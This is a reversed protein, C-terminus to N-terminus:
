AYVVGRRREDDAMIEAIRRAIEKEDQEPTAYVNITVAEAGRRAGNADVKINPDYADVTMKSLDDMADYVSDANAEIGVAIGEPIYRGVTDRMLKSPSSIGFFKKVGKWADSALNKMIDKIAGGARKIGSVIGDIMSRGLSGWDFSTFSKVMQGILSGIESLIQPITKAIGSIISGILKVGLAIFEPLRQIIASLMKGALSVITSLINPLNNSIGNIMSGIIKFGVDLFKPMSDVILKVVNSILKGMKDTISPIANLIGDGISEIGDIIMDVGSGDGTFLKTLGDMVKTMSPLFVTLINNKMGTISTKLDQLSDQYKASAKVADESMVGGLKHVQQRMAETDEASTNLLAGLEVAGKGLLKSAITTRETGEEMGQLATITRSFLEEPSMTELEKQSIGLKKFADSGGEAQTSLTKMASTMSDISAGSHQMIADWEQYATTSMGLKQSMKDINDGYEALQGVGTVLEKGVAVVATGASALAVASMKAGTSLAGKLKDGFTSAQKESQDLGKEYESSDLRLSAMLDLVNM